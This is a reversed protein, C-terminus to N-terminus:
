YIGGVAWGSALMICEVVKRKTRPREHTGLVELLSNNTGVLLRERRANPVKRSMSSLIESM